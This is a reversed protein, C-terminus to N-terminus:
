AAAAKNPRRRLRRRLRRKVGRVGIEASDLRMAVDPVQDKLFYGTMSLEPFVVLGANQAAATRIVTLHTSLNAAVDGLRPYCQALAVVISGAPDPEPAPAELPDAGTAGPVVEQDPMVGTRSRELVM